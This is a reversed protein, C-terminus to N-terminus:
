ELSFTMSYFGSGGLVPVNAYVSLVGDNNIFLPLTTNYEDIYKVLTRITSQVMNFLEDEYNYEMDDFKSYMNKYYNNMNNELNEKLENISYNKYEILDKSTLEKGTKTDINYVIYSPEIDAESLLKYEILLSLINDKNYFEYNIKYIIKDCSEDFGYKYADKFNDTEMLDKFFNIIESNIQKINDSDLNIQPIESLGNMEDNHGSINYTVGSYVIDKSDELKSINSSKNDNNEEVITQTENNKNLIKDYVIYGSTGLLAVVLIIVTIILGVNKKKEM